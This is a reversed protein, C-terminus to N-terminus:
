RQHAAVVALYCALFSELSQPRYVGLLRDGNSTHAFVAGYQLNKPVLLSFRRPGSPSAVAHTDARLLREAAGM